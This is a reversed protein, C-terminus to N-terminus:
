YSYGSTDSIKMNAGPPFQKLLKERTKENPQTLPDAWARILEANIGLIIIILVVLLKKM